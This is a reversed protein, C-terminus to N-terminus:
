CDWSGSRIRWGRRPLFVCCVSEQRWVSERRKDTDPNVRMRRKYRVADERRSVGNLLVSVAEQKEKNSIREGFIEKRNIEM